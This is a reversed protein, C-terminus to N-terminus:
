WLWPREFCKLYRQCAIIRSSQVNIGIMGGITVVVPNPRTNSLYHLFWDLISQKTFPDDTGGCSGGQYCTKCIAGITIGYM